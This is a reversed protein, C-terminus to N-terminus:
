ACSGTKMRCFTVVSVKVTGALATRHRLSRDDIPKALDKDDSPMRTQRSRTARCGATPSYLQLTMPALSCLVASSADQHGPRVQSSAIREHPNERFAPDRATPQLGSPILHSRDNRVQTM